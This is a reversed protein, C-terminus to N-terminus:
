RAYEFTEVADTLRQAPCENTHFGFDSDCLACHGYFPAIEAVVEDVENILLQPDAEPLTAEGELEGETYAENIQTDFWEELEAWQAKSLTDGIIEHLRSAHYNNM